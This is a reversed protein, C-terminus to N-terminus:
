LKTYFFYIKKQNTQTPALPAKQQTTQNKQPRKKGGSVLINNMCGHLAAFSSPEKSDNAQSWVYVGKVGLPFLTQIRVKWVKLIRLSATKHM